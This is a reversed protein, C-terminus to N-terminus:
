RYLRVKVGAPLKAKVTKVAAEIQEDSTVNLQVTILRGTSKGAADLKRVGDGGQDKSLCGAFM